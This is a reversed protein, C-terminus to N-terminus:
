GGEKSEFSAPKGNSSNYEEKKVEDIANKVIRPIDVKRCSVKSLIKRVPENTDFEIHKKSESWRIVDEEVFRISGGLNIHPIRKEKAWKYVTKESLKLYPAIEKATLLPKM